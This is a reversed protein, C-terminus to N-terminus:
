KGKELMKHEKKVPVIEEDFISNKKLGKGKKKFWRYGLIAALILILVSAIRAIYWWIDLADVNKNPKATRVQIVPSKEGEQRDQDYASVAFYYLSASKLGRVTYSTDNGVDITEFLDTPITGYYIKYGEVNEDDLSDWTLEVYDTGIRLAELNDPISIGQNQKIDTPTEDKPNQAPVAAPGYTVFHLDTDSLEAGGVIADGGGYTGSDGSQGYLWSATNDTTGIYIAHKVGPTLGVSPSFSFLITKTGPTLSLTVSSAGITAGGRKITATFDKNTNANTTIVIELSTLSDKTPTFYQGIPDNASIDYTGAPPYPKYSQDVQNAASARFGFPIFIFTLLLILFFRFNIFRKMRYINYIIHNTKSVQYISFIKVVFLDPNKLGSWVISKASVKLQMIFSREAM